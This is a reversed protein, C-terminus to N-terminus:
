ATRLSNLTDLLSQYRQVTKDLDAKDAKMQDLKKMMDDLITPFFSEKTANFNRIITKTQKNIEATM